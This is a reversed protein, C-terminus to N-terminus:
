RVNASTPRIIERLANVCNRWETTNSTPVTAPNSSVYRAGGNSVNNAGWGAAPMAAVTRRAQGPLGELFPTAYGLALLDLGDLQGWAEALKRSVMERAAKGLAGAYFERLDLVDRRM